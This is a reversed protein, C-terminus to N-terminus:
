IETKIEIIKNILIQIQPLNIVVFKCCAFVNELLNFIFERIYDWSGM